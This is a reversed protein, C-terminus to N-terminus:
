GNESRRKGKGASANEHIGASEESPPLSCFELIRSAGAVDNLASVDFTKIRIGVRALRETEGYYMDWYMGIAERKTPADFKPYLRDWTDPRGGGVRWHDRGETKLMYSEVTEERDRRLCVFTADPRTDAIYEVYPLYYFAVDCVVPASRSALIGLSKEIEERKFAWNLRSRIRDMEHTAHCEASSDLLRSLSTTGCRGTGLGIM